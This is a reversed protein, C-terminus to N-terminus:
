FLKELESRSYWVEDVESKDGKVESVIGEEGACPGALIKVTDLVKLPAAELEDAGAPQETQDPEAASSATTSSATVNDESAGTLSADGSTGARKPSSGGAEEVGAASASNALDHDRKGELLARVLDADMDAYEEPDHGDQKLLSDIANRERDALPLISSAASSTAHTGAKGSGATSSADGSAVGATSASSVGVETAPRKAEPAISKAARKPRKAEPAISKAARKPKKAEESHASSAAVELAPEEEAAHDVGQEPVAEPISTPRGLPALDNRLPQGEPIQARIRQIEQEDSISWVTCNGQPKRIPVPEALEVYHTIIHCLPGKAWPYGNCDEPAVPREAIYILGNVKGYYMEMDADTYPLGNILSGFDELGKLDRALTTYVAHWGIRLPRKRNEVLKHPGCSDVMGKSLKPCKVGVAYEIHIEDPSQATKGRANERGEPRAVGASLSSAPSSAGASTSAEGDEELRQKKAPGHQEGQARKGPRLDPAAENSLGAQHILKAMKVKSMRMLNRPLGITDDRKGNVVRFGGSPHIRNRVHRLTLSITWGPHEQPLVAHFSSMNVQGTLAYLSRSTPRLVAIEEQGELAYFGLPNTLKSDGNSADVGFRAIYVTASSEIAGRQESFSQDQHKSTDHGAETYLNVLAHNPRPGDFLRHIEDALQQLLPPMAETRKQDEILLGFNFIPLLGDSDPIGFQLKLHNLKIPRGGSAMSVEYPDNAELRQRTWEIVERELDASFFDKHEGALIERKLADGTLLPKRIVASRPDASAPPKEPQVTAEPMEAYPHLFEVCFRSIRHTRGQGKILQIYLTDGAEQVVHAKQRQLDCLTKPLMPKLCDEARKVEVKTSYHHLDAKAETCHTGDENECFYLHPEKLKPQLAYLLRCYKRGQARAGDVDCRRVEGDENEYHVGDPDYVFAHRDVIQQAIPRPRLSDVSACIRQTAAAHSEHLAEVEERVVNRTRAHQEDSAPKPPKQREQIDLQHKPIRNWDDKKLDGSQKKQYCAEEFEVAADKNPFERLVDPNRSVLDVARIAYDGYFNAVVRGPELEVYKEGARKARMYVKKDDHNHPM